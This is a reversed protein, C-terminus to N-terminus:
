EDYNKTRRTSNRLAAQVKGNEENWVSIFVKDMELILLREFDDLILGTYAAWEVIQSPQLAEPRSSGTSRLRSVEWFLQFYRSNEPNM